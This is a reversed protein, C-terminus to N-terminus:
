QKQKDLMYKLMEKDPDDNAEFPIYISKIRGGRVFLFYPFILNDADSLKAQIGFISEESIGFSQAMNKLSRPRPNDTLYIVNSCGTERALSVAYGTCTNCHRDSIRCVLTVSDSEAITAESGSIGTCAGISDAIYRNSYIYNQKLCAMNRESWIQKRNLSEVSEKLKAKQNTITYNYGISFALVLLILLMLTYNVTKKM